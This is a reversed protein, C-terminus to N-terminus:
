IVFQYYGILKSKNTSLNADIKVPLCKVSETPCLKKGALKIELDWIEFKKQESKFIVMETKKIQIVM